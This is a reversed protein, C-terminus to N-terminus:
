AGRPGNAEAALRRILATEAPDYPTGDPRLIDHFWVTPEAAYPTQWSDWPFNTQSRGAVFGWNYAGIGQAQLYPLCAAFTSGQTRAMYETCLLPRGLRQLAEARARLGALPQYDHFSIIDSNELQVRELPTLDADRRWTGNWVASTLPQTPRAARAWDFVLQLYPTVLWTKAEGLDRPGRNSTNHNGPENWLDWGHVRPDERFNGIVARVYPELALFDRPRTLTAVGPSQLWTSNHVGPEPAPQPGPRPVPHWCSDFIVPLVGLGHRAALDLFTDVRQLFERPDQQWALDHLYVRLSTFGIDAAWGLERDIEGTPFDPAAWWDLQNGASAPLYNAGVLWPQRQQWDRAKELSWTGPAPQLAHPDHTPM